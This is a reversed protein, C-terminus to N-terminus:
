YGRYGNGHDRTSFAFDTRWRGCARQFEAHAEESTSPSRVDDPIEATARAAESLQFVIQHADRGFHEGLAQAVEDLDAHDITM